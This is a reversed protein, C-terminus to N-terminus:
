RKKFVVLARVTEYYLNEEMKLLNWMIKNDFRILGM